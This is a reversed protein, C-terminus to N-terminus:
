LFFLRTSDGTHCCYFEFLTGCSLTSGSRRADKQFAACMWTKGVRFFYVSTSQSMLLQTYAINTSPTFPSAKLSKILRYKTNKKSEVKFWYPLLMTGVNTYNPVETKVSTQPWLCGSQVWIHRWGISDEWSHKCQQYIKKVNFHIPPKLM